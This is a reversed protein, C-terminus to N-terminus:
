RDNRGNLTQYIREGVSQGAKKKEARDIQVMTTFLVNDRNWNERFVYQGNYYGEEKAIRLILQDSLVYQKKRVCLDVTDIEFIWQNKVSYVGIYRDERIYEFQFKYGLINKEISERTEQEDEVELYFTKYNSKDIYIIGNSRCSICWIYKGLSLVPLFLTYEPNLVSDCDYYPGEERNFLYFGFQEPFETITRIVGEKRNWVYVEKYCSGLWFNVGDFCISYIEDKVGTMQYKEFNGDSINTCYIMYGCTSYLEDEVLVYEGGFERPAYFCRGLEKKELNIEFIKGTTEELLYVNRGDQKYSNPFFTLYSEHVIEIEEWVENELNYCWVNKGSNPLCFIINKYKICYPYKGFWNEESKPIQTVFECTESKMDACLVTGTEGTCFWAKDNEIWWNNSWFMKKYQM